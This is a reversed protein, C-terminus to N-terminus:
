SQSGIRKQTQSVIQGNLGLSDGFKMGASFAGAKAPKGRKGFPVLKTGKAQIFAENAAKETKYLEVVVLGTGPELDEGGSALIKEVRQWLRFEAGTAFSRSEPSLNEKYRSRCEKLISKILYETMLAATVVNSQKGVFHYTLKTGNIKRGIFVTCFFMRAVSRAVGRCWKMGYTQTELEERGEMAERDTVDAMALNHKALMGHAMRLANDRENETAAADNALALLKRVRDLIKESM